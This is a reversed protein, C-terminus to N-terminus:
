REAIAEFVEPEEYATVTLDAFTERLHSAVVPVVVRETGEHGADIVCLGRERAELADHYGVDGTIFVDVDFPIKGVSSGGSGGMVAVKSVPKTPDGVARVHQVRLSKRVTEALATLPVPADLKGRVGIGLDPDRNEIPIIDYAPEEYPHADKLARIVADLKAKPFITEFRREPEENLTHKQGAFPQAGEHPFFTGTGPTSFTCHSYRGIGGAGAACVAERMAALHSEPVFTVLKYQLGQPVPILPKTNTLGVIKALTDNVGGPAIDLNTHASFCAIRAAALEVCLATHANDMRLNKLPDWIIPHHSVIMNAGVNRAETLTERTITLAVLVHDANWDPSGINLGAHDWDYALAPPALENMALCIDRVKM